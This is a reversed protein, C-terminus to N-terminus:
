KKYMWKSPQNKKSTSSLIKTLCDSINNFVKCFGVKWIGQASAERFAHYCIGINKNTISTELISASNLVGKNNGWVHDPGLIPVGKM